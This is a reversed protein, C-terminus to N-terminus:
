TIIRRRMSIAVPLYAARSLCPCLSIKEAKNEGAQDKKRLREGTSLTNRVDGGVMFAEQETGVYIIQLIGAPM